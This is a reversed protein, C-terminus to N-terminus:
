KKELDYSFLHHGFTGDQLGEYVVKNVGGLFDAKLKWYPLTMPTLDVHVDPRWGYDGAMDIYDSVDHMDTLYAEDVIRKADSEKATCAMIVLRAGDKGVRALEKFLKDLDVYETSEHAWIFDYTKDGVPLRRMDGRNYDLKDGFGRKMADKQAYKAQEPSVTFGDMKPGYRECIMISGGGAGCGADLGRMDATVEGLFPMGYLVTD